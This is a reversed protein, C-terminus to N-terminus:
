STGVLVLTDGRLLLRKSLQVFKQLSLCVFKQSMLLPDKIIKEALDRDEYANSLIKKNEYFNDMAKKLDTAPLRREYGTKVVDGETLSLGETPTISKGGEYTAKEVAKSVPM